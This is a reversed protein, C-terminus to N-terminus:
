AFFLRAAAEFARPRDAHLWHGARPIKAFKANPFLDKIRPRMENTVYTSDAGALMLCPKKYSDTLEPFGLIQPMERQLIKLNLKWRKEKLDLSRLFFNRLALDPVDAALAQLAEARTSIQSLDLQQMAEIYQSQDHGYAVPAIDAILLRDVLDPETLGLVMAAKGGMSHGIVHMPHGIHQIIQALDQAMDRYSHSDYWPSDGHNRLDVAYVNFQDSLRKSIVGWNRASGYLGHVILVSAASQACPYTLCNLM